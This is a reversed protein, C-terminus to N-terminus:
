QQAFNDPYIDFLPTNTDILDNKKCHIKIWGSAGAHIDLCLFETELLLVRSEKDIWQNSTAFIDRVWARNMGAFGEFKQSFINNNSCHMKFHEDTFQRYNIKKFSHRFINHM